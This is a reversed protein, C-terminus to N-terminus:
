SEASHPHTLAPPFPREGGLKRAQRLANFWPERQHLAHYLLVQLLAADYDRTAWPAVRGIAAAAEEGVSAVLLSPAQAKTVAVIEAPV